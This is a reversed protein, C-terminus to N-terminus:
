AARQEEDAVTAAVQIIQLAGGLAHAGAGLAQLAAAKGRGLLEGVGGPGAPRPAGRGGVRGQLRLQYIAPEAPAPASNHKNAM